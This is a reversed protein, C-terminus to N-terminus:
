GSKYSSEGHWKEPLHVLPLWPIHMRLTQLLRAFYRQRGGCVPGDLSRSADPLLLLQGASPCSRSRCCCNPSCWTWAGTRRSVTLTQEACLGSVTQGMGHCLRDAIRESRPETLSTKMFQARRYSLVLNYFIDGRIDAYGEIWFHADPHQKLWEADRDLVASRHSQQVRQLPLLSGEREPQVGNDLALRRRLDQPRCCFLSGGAILQCVVGM